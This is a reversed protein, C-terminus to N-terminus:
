VQAFINFNGSEEAAAEPADSKFAKLAKLQAFDDHSQLVDDYHNKLLKEKRFKILDNTAQLCRESEAMLEDEEEQSPEQSPKSVSKVASNGQSMLGSLDTNIQSYSMSTDDGKKAKVGPVPAKKGISMANSIPKRLGTDVKGRPKKNEVENEKYVRGATPKGDGSPRSAPKNSRPQTAKKMM